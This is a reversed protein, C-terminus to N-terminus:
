LSIQDQCLTPQCRDFSVFSSLMLLLYDDIPCLTCRRVSSIYSSDNTLPAISVVSRPKIITWQLRGTKSEEGGGPLLSIHYWTNSGSLPSSTSAGVLSAIVDWRRRLSAQFPQMRGRLAVVGDFVSRMHLVSSTREAMRFWSNWM